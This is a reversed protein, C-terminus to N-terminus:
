FQFYIFESIDNLKVLCLGLLAGALAAHAPGFRWALHRPEEIGHAYGPSALGPEYARFLTQTNPAALALALGALIGALGAGALPEIGLGHQGAMSAWIM